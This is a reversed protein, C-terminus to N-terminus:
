RTTPGEQSRNYIVASQPSRHGTTQLGAKEGLAVKAKEFAAKVADKNAEVGAKQKFTAALGKLGVKECVNAVTTLFCKKPQVGNRLDNKLQEVIKDKDIAQVNTNYTDFLAKYEEPSHAKPNPKELAIDVVNDVFKQALNAQRTTKQEEELKIAEAALDGYTIVLRNLHAEVNTELGTNQTQYAGRMTTLTEDFKTSGTNQTTAVQPQTPRKKASPVITALGVKLKNNDEKVEPYKNSFDDLFASAKERQNKFNNITIDTMATNYTTEAEKIDVAGDKALALLEKAEILTDFKQGFSNGQEPQGAFYKSILSDRFKNDETNKAM